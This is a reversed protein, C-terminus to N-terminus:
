KVEFTLRIKENGLSDVDYVILKKDSSNFLKENKLRIRNQKKEYYDMEGSIISGDKKVIEVLNGKYLNVIFKVNDNGILKDYNYKYWKNNKDVKGTKLNVCIAHIPLFSFCKKTYNYYVKTFIQSVHDMAILTKEKKNVNKKELFYPEDLLYYYRLKKIMPGKNSSKIGHKLYDFKDEQTLNNIEM